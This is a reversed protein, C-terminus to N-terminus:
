ARNLWGRAYKEQAPNRRMYDIYHMSQLSNVIKLLYGPKDKSLYTNLTKLTGPGFLGDEIIDPYNKQNRNLLNLGEQLFIVARRVGLNVSTDFLEEAIAQDQILNGQFRDWYHERYFKFEASHLQENNQLNEPFNAPDSKFEDIVSWGAWSPNYRRSIGKYTEGGADLPDNVYGGENM